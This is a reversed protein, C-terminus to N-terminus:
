LIEELLKDFYDKGFKPGNKLYEKNLVYGKTIYDKLTNTSWIRFAIAEKSNVRYGVTIIADLSYFSTNYKKGDNATTRIKRIVSDENLESSNFIEKLHYNITNVGVNFLEAMTKQTLWFNEEDYLVEVKVNNNESQYIILDYLEKVVAM